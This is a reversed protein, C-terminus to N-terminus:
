LLYARQDFIAADRFSCISYGQATRKSKHRPPSPICKEGQKRGEAGEFDNYVIM